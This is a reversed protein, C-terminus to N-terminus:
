AGGMGARGRRGARTLLPRSADPHDGSRAMVGFVTRRDGDELTGMADAMALSGDDLAAIQFAGESVWVYAPCGATCPETAMVCPPPGAPNEPNCAALLAGWTLAGRTVTKPKM